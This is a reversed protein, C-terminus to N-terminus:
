QGTAEVAAATAADCDTGAAVTELARAAATEAGGNAAVDPSAGARVTCAEATGDNDVIRSAERITTQGPLHSPIASHASELKV